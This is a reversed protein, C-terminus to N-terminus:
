GGEQPLMGCHVSRVGAWWGRTWPDGGTPADPGPPYVARADEQGAAFGEDYLVDGDTQM